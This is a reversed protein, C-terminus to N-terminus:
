SGRSGLQLSVLLWTTRACCSQELTGVIMIWLWQRVVSSGLWHFVNSAVFMCLAEPSSFRGPAVVGIRDFSHRGYMTPSQAWSIALLVPIACVSLILAIAAPWNFRYRAPKGPSSLWTEVGAVIAVVAAAIPADEKVSIVAIATVISAIMRQQLVFYFLILCLSL